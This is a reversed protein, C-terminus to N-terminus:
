RGGKKLPSILWQNGKFYQQKLPKDVMNQSINNIHSADSTMIQTSFFLFEGHSTMTTRFLLRAVGTM